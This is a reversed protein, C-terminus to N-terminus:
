SYGDYILQFNFKIRPVMFLLSSWNLLSCTNYEGGEDHIGFKVRDCRSLWEDTRLPNTKALSAYNLYRSGNAFTMVNLDSKLESVNRKKRNYVYDKRLLHIKIRRKWGIKRKKRGILCKVRRWLSANDAFCGYKKNCAEGDM